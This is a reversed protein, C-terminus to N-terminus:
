PFSFERVSVSAQWGAPGHEVHVPRGAPARDTINCGCDPCVWTLPSNYNKSGTVQEIAFQTASFLLEASTDGTIRVIV